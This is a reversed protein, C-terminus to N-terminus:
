FWCTEQNTKCFINFFMERYLAAILKQKSKGTCNSAVWGLLSYDVLCVFTWINFTLRFPIGLDDQQGRSTEWHHHTVTYYLMPLSYQRALPPPALHALHDCVPESTKGSAPCCSSGSRCINQKPNLYLLGGESTFLVSLIGTKLIVNWLLKNIELFM